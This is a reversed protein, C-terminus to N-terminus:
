REEKDDELTVADDKCTSGRYFTSGVLGYPSLPRVCRDGCLQYGCRIRAGVWQGVRLWPGLGNRDGSCGGGRSSGVGIESAEGEGGGRRRSNLRAAAGAQAASNHHPTTRYGRGALSAVRGAASPLPLSGGGSLLSPPAAPPALISSLADLRSATSLSATSRTRAGGKVVEGGRSSVLREEM